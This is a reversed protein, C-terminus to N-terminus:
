PVQLTSMATARYLKSQEPASPNEVLNGTGHEKYYAGDPSFFHSFTNTAYDHVGYLKLMVDKFTESVNSAARDDMECLAPSDGKHEWMSFVALVGAAGCFQKPVLRVSNGNGTSKRGAEKPDAPPPEDVADGVLSLLVLSKLLPALKATNHVVRHGRNRIAWELYEFCRKSKPDREATLLGQIGGSLSAVCVCVLLRMAMNDVASVKLSVDEDQVSPTNMEFLWRNSSAVIDNCMCGIWTGNESDVFANTESQMALKEPIPTEESETNSGVIQVDSWATDKGGCIFQQSEKDAIDLESITERQEPITGKTTEVAQKGMEVTGTSPSREAPVPTKIIVSSPPNSRELMVRPKARVIADMGGHHRNVWRELVEMLALSMDLHSHLISTNKPYTSLLWDMSLSLMQVLLEVDVQTTLFSRPLTHQTCINALDRASQVKSSLPGDRFKRLAPLSAAFQSFLATSNM